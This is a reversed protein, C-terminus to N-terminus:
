IRPTKRAPLYVKVITRYGFVNESVGFERSLRYDRLRKGIHDPPLQKPDSAIVVVANDGPGDTAAAYYAPSRYEWTFRLSSKSLAEAAPAPVPDRRYVLRKATFLDLIPVSVDPNVLAHLQPLAIVEVRDGGLSDLYEGAQKLNAASAQQSFPLFGFVVIVVSSVVSCLVVHKRVEGDRIERLGYAAMLALMPFAPLLYRIRKIEMVVLLLPLWLIIAYRADRRKFAAYASFLAAGSIFPHIQFLFTSVYSEEWRRLGPTQYNRLLELQGMIVDLNPLLVVGILVVSTMALAGARLWVSRPGSWHRALFVVPLVSLMPWTSYKTCIALAVALAALAMTGIGDHELAQITMFVALTLFFMTPVDVLMLPVQALLYPMGLLLAGAYFGVTEDWLTKGILYTLVVTGSFLLTTFVQIFIRQEGLLSFILGYLLPVLPLDTWAGIQGGWETLFYGVGYLEVHKAQTFYRAVDVIVEPEAWSLAGVSFSLVFLVSAARYRPFPIRALAYALLLGAVLIPAIRFVDADTFVWQWSTLRNDDQARFVFLSLFAALSLLMVTAHALPAIEV